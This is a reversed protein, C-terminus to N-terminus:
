QGETSTKNLLEAEEYTKEVDVSEVPFQMMGSRMQLYFVDGEVWAMQCRFVGGSKLYVTKIDDPPADEECFTASPIGMSLCFLLIVLFILRNNKM